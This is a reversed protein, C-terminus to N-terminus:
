YGLFEKTGLKIFDESDKKGDIDEYFAKLNPNKYFLQFSNSGSLAMFIQRSAGWGSVIFASDNFFYINKGPSIQPYNKQLYFIVRQAVEARRVTWHTRYTLFYSFLNLFLFLTLYFIIIKFNARSLIIGMVFSFGFLPVTLELPFKHWPLFLVPLLTIFFWFGGFIVFGFNQKSRFFEKLFIFLFSLFLIVFLGLIIKSELPYFVFLKPNIVLKPGIFDLFMEPMGFSWIGYWGLTNFVKFSFDWIYSDGEVGGFHFLRLYLYVIDVLFFPLLFKARKIKGLFILIGLALFPFTVATEKSLLALFFFGVSFAFNKITSKELFKIWFLCSALYFVAVGIECFASLYYIRAFHSSSFGYVFLAVLAVKENKSIEKVLLYVLYLSLSFFLLVIIRYGLPNLGFLLNGALFFVQTTLPRYFTTSHSNKQFSFYSIIESPNDIQSAKMNFFDDGFFFTKLSPAYVIAALFIILIVLFKKM